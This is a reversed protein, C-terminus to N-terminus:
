CRFGCNKKQSLVNEFKQEDVVGDVISDVVVLVVVVVDVVAGLADMLEITADLGVVFVFLVCYTLDRLPPERNIM